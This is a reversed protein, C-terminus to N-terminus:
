RRVIPFSASLPKSDTVYLRGGQGNRNVYWSASLADLCHAAAWNRAEIETSAEIRIRIM